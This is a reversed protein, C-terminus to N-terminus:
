IHVIQTIAKRESRAIGCVWLMFYDLCMRSAYFDQSPYTAYLLARPLRDSSDSVDACMIEINFHMMIM